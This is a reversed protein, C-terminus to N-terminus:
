NLNWNDRLNALDQCFRLFRLRQKPKRRADSSLDGKKNEEEESLTDAIAVWRASPPREQEQRM